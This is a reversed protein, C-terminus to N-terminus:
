SARVMPMEAANLMNEIFIGYGRTPDNVLVHTVAGVLKGNQIIPSGSMGQIIGGTKELLAPDTVKVHFCKGGEANKDVDSILVKYERMEGDDLTCFISAEGERLDSKLGIPLAESLPNQPLEALVGFVGCHSNKTMSGLKNQKFFGKIEGPAGSLGKEIGSITVDVVAGRNIPILDGSETNCIGHGLGAFMKSEPEIFSITGIGAGSDRIIIGTKYKGDSLSKVPTIKVQRSEGGRLYTLTIENGLSANIAASLAGTGSASKGDIETIVDHIKLGAAKAPNVSGGESDVDCFGSIILGETFFKVGFPMGGPILKIDKYSTLEVTKIPLVDFLKYQASSTVEGDYKVSAAEAYLFVPLENGEFYSVKDPIIYDYIGLIGVFILVLSLLLVSIRKFFKNKLLRM